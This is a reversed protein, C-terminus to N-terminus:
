MTNAAGTILVGFLWNFFVFCLGGVGLWMNNSAARGANVGVDVGSVELKRSVSRGVVIGPLFLVLIVPVPYILHVLSNYPFAFALLPALYLWTFLILFRYQNESIGHDIFVNKQLKIEKNWKFCFFIIFALAVYGLM